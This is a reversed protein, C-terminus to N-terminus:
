TLAALQTFLIPFIAGFITIWKYLWFFRNNDRGTETFIIIIFDMVWLLVSLKQILKRYSEYLKNIYVDTYRVKVFVALNSLWSVNWCSWTASPFPFCSRNDRSSYFSGSHRKSSRDAVSGTHLSSQQKRERERSILNVSSGM